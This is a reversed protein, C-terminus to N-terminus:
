EVVRSRVRGGGTRRSLNEWDSCQVSSIKLSKPSLSLRNHPSPQDASLSPVFELTPRCLHQVLAGMSVSACVGWVCLMWEGRRFVAANGVCM